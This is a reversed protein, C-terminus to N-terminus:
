LIITKINKYIKVRQHLYQIASLIKRIIIQCQKENFTGNKALREFLDGGCCYEM